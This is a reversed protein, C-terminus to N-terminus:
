CSSDVTTSSEPRSGAIDSFSLTRAAQSITRLKTIMGGVYILRWECCHDLQWTHRASSRVEAMGWFSLLCPYGGLRTAEEVLSRHGKHMADFKGLAICVSRDKGTLPSCIPRQWNDSLELYTDHSSLQKARLSLQRPLGNAKAASSHATKGCCRGHFHLSNHPM